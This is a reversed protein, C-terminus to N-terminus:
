KKLLENIRSELKVIFCERSDIEKILDKIAKAAKKTCSPQFDCEGTAIRYNELSHVLKEYKDKEIM